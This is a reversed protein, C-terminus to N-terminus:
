ADDMKVMKTNILACGVISADDLVTMSMIVFVAICVYEQGEMKMNTNVFLEVISADDLVTM